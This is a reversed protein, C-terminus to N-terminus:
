PMKEPSLQHRSTHFFSGFVPPIERVLARLSLGRERLILDVHDDNGPATGLLWEIDSRFNAFREHYPNRNDTWHSILRNRMTTNKWLLRGYEMRAEDQYLLRRSRSPPTDHTVM